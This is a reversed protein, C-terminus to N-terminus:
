LVSIDLIYSDYRFPRKNSFGTKIAKSKLAINVYQVFLRSDCFM